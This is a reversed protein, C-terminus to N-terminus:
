LPGMRRHNLYGWRARARAPVELDDHDSAAAARRMQGAARVQTAWHWPSLYCRAQSTNQTEM